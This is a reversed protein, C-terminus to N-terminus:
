MKVVMQTYFTKKIIVEKQILLINNSKFFQSIDFDEIDYVEQKRNAKFVTNTMIDRYESFIQTMEKKYNPYLDEDAEEVIADSEIDWSDYNPNITKIDSKVKGIYEMLKNSQILLQYQEKSLPLVENNPYKRFEPHLATIKNFLEQPITKVSSKEIVQPLENQQILNVSVSYLGSSLNSLDNMKVRNDGEYLNIELSKVLKAEINYLSIVAKEDTESKIDLAFHNTFPNGLVQFKLTPKESFSTYQASLSNSELMVGCISRCIRLCGGYGIAVFEDLTTEGLVANLIKLDGIEKTSPQMGAFSFSLFANNKAAKISYNGNSDALTGQTTGKIWVSAGVLPEGKENTVTGSITHQAFLNFSFLILLLTFTKKM